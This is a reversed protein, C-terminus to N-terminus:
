AATAHAKEKASAQGASSDRRLRGSSGPVEMRTGLRTTSDQAGADARAHKREADGASRPMTPSPSPALPSPPPYWLM